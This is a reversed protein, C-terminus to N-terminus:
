GRLLSFVNAQISNAQSLLQTATSVSLQAHVLNTIETAADVGIIDADASSLNGMGVEARSVADIFNGQVSGLRTQETIVQSTARDITQLADQFNGSSLALAGGSGIDAVASAHIRANGQDTGGTAADSLLGSLTTVAYQGNGHGLVDTTVKSFGYHVIDGTGGSTGLLGVVGQTLDINIPTFIAVNPPNTTTDASLANTGFDIELDFGRELFRATTGNEGGLTVDFGNIRATAAQGFGTLVAGSAGGNGLTGSANGVQITNTASQSLVEVKIFEDAGYGVTTFYAPAVAGNTDSVLTVGTEQALRNFAGSVSGLAGNAAIDSFLRITASGLKGTVRLEMFEGTAGGSVSLFARTGQQVISTNVSLVSTGDSLTKVPGGVGIKNVKVSKVGSGATLSAGANISFDTTAGTLNISRVANITSGGDLLSRSGLKTNHATSDIQKLALDIEAQISDRESPDAVQAQVLQRKITDLSGKINDLAANALQLGTINVQGTEQVVKLAGIEARTRRSTSFSLADDGPNVLREQNNLKQSSDAAIRSFRRVADISSQQSRFVPDGTTSQIPFAPM